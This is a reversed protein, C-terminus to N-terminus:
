LAMVHLFPVACGCPRVSACCTLLELECFCQVDSFQSFGLSSLILALLGHSMQEM